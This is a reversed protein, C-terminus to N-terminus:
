LMCNRVPYVIIKKNKNEPSVDRNHKGKVSYIYNWDMVVKVVYICNFCLEFVHKLKKKKISSEPQSAQLNKYLKRRLFYSIKCVHNSYYILINLYLIHIWDYFLM